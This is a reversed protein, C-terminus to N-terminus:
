SATRGLARAIDAQTLPTGDRALLELVDLGKDLAPAAYAPVDPVHTSSM